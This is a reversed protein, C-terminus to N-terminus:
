RSGRAASTSEFGGCPVVWQETNQTHQITHVEYQSQYTIGLRTTAHACPDRSQTMCRYIPPSDTPSAYWAVEHPQCAPDPTPWPRVTTSLRRSPRSKRATHRATRNVDYIAQDSWFQKREDASLSKSSKTPFASSYGAHWLRLICFRFRRRLPQKPTSHLERDEQTAM